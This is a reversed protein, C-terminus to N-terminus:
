PQVIVPQRFGFIVYAYSPLRTPTFRWDRVAELSVKEFGSGAGLIRAESVTGTTTVAMEVLVIGDFLAQLPFAPVTIRTPFPV